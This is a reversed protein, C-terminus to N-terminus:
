TNGFVDQQALATLRILNYPPIATCCARGIRKSQGKPAAYDAM